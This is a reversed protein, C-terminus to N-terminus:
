PSIARARRPATSDSIVHVLGAGLLTAVAAFFATYFVLHSPFAVAHLPHVLGSLYGGWCLTSFLAFHGVAFSQAASRGVQALTMMCLMGMPLLADILTGGEFLTHSTATGVGLAWCALAHGFLRTPAYAHPLHHAMARTPRTGFAVASLLAFCACFIYIGVKLPLLTVDDM